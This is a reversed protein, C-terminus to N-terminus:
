KGGESLEIIRKAFDILTEPTHDVAELWIYELTDGGLNVESYEECLKEQWTKELIPRFDGSWFITFDEVHMCVAVEYDGNNRVKIIEVKYYEGHDSHYAECITGIPPVGVGDWEKNEPVEDFVEEFYKFEDIEILCCGDSSYLEELREIFGKVVGNTFYKEYIRTNKSTKDLYGERDILKFKRLKQETM